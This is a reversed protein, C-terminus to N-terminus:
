SAPRPVPMQTSDPSARRTEQRGTITEASPSSVADILAPRLAPSRKTAIPAWRSCLPCSTRTSLCPLARHAAEVEGRQRNALSGDGQEEDNGDGDGTKECEQVEAAGLIRVERDLDDGERGGPRARGGLLHLILDGLRELLPHLLQGPVVPAFGISRFLTTYPFLTDTRTSRPPRRIM